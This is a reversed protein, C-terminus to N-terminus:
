HSSEYPHEDRSTHHAGLVLSAFIWFAFALDNKFYPVDVLGHVLIAILPLAFIWNTTKQLALRIWTGIMIIFALIGLLGTESWLNLLINHPYQFIELFTAKHYPKIVTPYAGLGAGFIPHDQLMHVTEKWMITRVKGSWENFTLTRTIKTHLPPIAFVSITLIVCSGLTLLRTKKQALLVILGCVLIAISGGISKALLTAISASIFGLWYVTQKANTHLLGICLAAIPACFLAVANPFPFPGTARRTLLDTDWPHPIASGTIFQFLSWIAIGCSVLSLSRILRARDRKETLLANLLIFFALPELTYARWLGLASLHSPAIWVALLTSVFWAIIGIHWPQVVNWGQKWVRCGHRVTAGVIMGIFLLELLTTPLQGIRTRLLYLPLLLPFWAIARRSDHWTYAGWACALIGLIVFM